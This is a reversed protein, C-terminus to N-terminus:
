SSVDSEGYDKSIELKPENSDEYGRPGQCEKALYEGYEHRQDWM